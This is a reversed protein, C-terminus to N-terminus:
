QEVWVERQFADKCAFGFKYVTRKLEEIVKDYARRDSKFEVVRLAEDTRKTITVGNGIRNANLLDVLTILGAEDIAIRCVKRFM